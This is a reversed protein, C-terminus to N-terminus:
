IGIPYDATSRIEYMSFTIPHFIIKALSYTKKNYYILIYNPNRDFNYNFLFWKPIIEGKYKYEMFTDDGLESTIKKKYSEREIKEDFIQKSLSVEIGLFGCAWLINIVKEVDSEKGIYAEFTERDCPIKLSRMKNLIKDLEAYRRKSEYLLEQTFVM